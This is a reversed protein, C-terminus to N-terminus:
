IAKSSCYGQPFFRNGAFFARRGSICIHYIRRCSSNNKSTNETMFGYNQQLRKKSEDCYFCYDCKMNCLGSAPKILVSLPPM